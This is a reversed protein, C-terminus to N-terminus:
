FAPSAPQSATKPTGNRRYMEYDPATLSPYLHFVIVYREQDRDPFGGKHITNNRFALLLGPDGTPQEIKVRRAAIQERYWETLLERSKMRSLKEGRHAAMIKRMAPREDAFIKKSDKWSVVEMAGNAASGESLYLMLNICTGPGGDSHWLQSGEPQEKTRVAKYLKAYFVKLNSGYISEVFDALGTKFITEIEPFELWADRTFVYDADWPSEPQAELAKVKGLIASALPHHQASWYSAFGDEAFQSAAVRVPEDITRSQYAARCRAHFETFPAAVDASMRSDYKELNNRFRWDTYLNKLASIV